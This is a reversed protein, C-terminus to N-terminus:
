AEAPRRRRSTPPKSTKTRRPTTTRRRRRRPDGAPAGAEEPEAPASTPARRQRVRSRTRRRVAPTPAPQRSRTPRLAPERCCGACSRRSASNWRWSRVPMACRSRLRPRGAADHEVLGACAVHRLRHLGVLGRAQRRAPLRERSVQHQRRLVALRCRAADRICIGRHEARSDRPRGVSAARRRQRQRGARRARVDREDSAHHRRDAGQRARRALRHELARRQARVALIGEPHVARRRDSDERGAADSHEHERDAAGPRLRRAAGAAARRLACRAACRCDTSHQSPEQVISRPKAPDAGAPPALTASVFSRAARAGSRGARRVLRRQASVTHADPDCLPHQHIAPRGATSSFRYCSYARSARRNRGRSQHCGRGQRGLRDVSGTFEDGFVYLSIKKDKSHYTRIAEVIGEIPSSNSFANWTRLREIVTRRQAPTDPIWKGRYGRSCTPRRRREDGPLGEGAPYLNLTEEVKKLMMPWVYNFM